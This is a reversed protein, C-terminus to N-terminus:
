IRMAEDGRYRGERGDDRGYVDDREEDRPRARERRRGGGAARRLMARFPSTLRRVDELRRMTEEGRDLNRDLVAMTRALGPDDDDLWARLTRAFVIAAGQVRVGSLPGSTPVGAAALMFRQSNVALGNLALLTLPDDEVGRVIRRLAHKYPKLADIRRMMVDFVRERPSEDDLDDSGGELVIRDIRRSFGALVAGKSPFADRFQSLTLGARETIDAVDIDDWEDEAALAMLADIIRDRPSSAAADHGATEGTPAAPPSMADGPSAASIPAPSAALDPQPTQDFKDAKRKKPM